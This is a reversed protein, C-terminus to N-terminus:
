TRKKWKDYKFGKPLDGDGLEMCFSIGMVANKHIKHTDYYGSEGIRRQFAKEYTEESSGILQENLYSSDKDVNCAYFGEHRYNHKYARQLEKKSHIFEINFTGKAISM